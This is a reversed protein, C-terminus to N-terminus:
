RHVRLRVLERLLTAVAPPDAIRLKAQTIGPGVKLGVDHESLRAFAKEDTTDDGVFLVAEAGVGARLLDIASGKDTDIVALEIVSKGRTVEVGSLTVLEKDVTRTAEDRLTPAVNRLHVAVSAPKCEVSMGPFRDVLAKAVTSLMELLQQQAATIAVAFGTAFEMGHSGVLDVGTPAGTLASLDERSRGSIIAASTHPAAALDCLAEISGPVARADMPRPVIPALTGDFDAAVLLVSAEALDSLAHQLDGSITM